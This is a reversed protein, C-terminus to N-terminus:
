MHGIATLGFGHRRPCTFLAGEGVGVRVAAVDGPRASGGAARGTHAAGCREDEARLDNRPQARDPLPRQREMTCDGPKFDPATFWSGARVDGTSPDIACTVVSDHGRNTAFVFRGSPHMHVDALGNNGEFSSPASSVTQLIALAGSRADFSLVRIASVLEHVAYVRNGAANFCLHRPGSPAPLLLSGTEVMELRGVSERVEYVLIRDLGLDPVLVFRGSPDIVVHHPHANTQRVPHVSAGDRRIVQVAEALRGDPLIPLLCLSGRSGHGGPSGYAGYERFNAVIAWRRGVDVAIHCPTTGHTQQWGLDELDGTGTIHYAHAQGRQVVATLDDTSVQSAVYLLGSPHFAFAQPEDLAAALRGITLDGSAGDFAVAYLGPHDGMVAIYGNLRSSM